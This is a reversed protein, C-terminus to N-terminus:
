RLGLGPGLLECMRRRGRNVLTKVTEPSCRRIEAIEARTRGELHTMGVVEKEVHPLCELADRVKDRAEVQEAARWSTGGPDGGRAPDGELAAELSEGRRIKEYERRNEATKRVVGWLTGVARDDDKPLSVRGSLVKGFADQVIGEATDHEPYGLVRIALDVLRERHTQYLHSVQDLECHTPWSKGRARGDILDPM